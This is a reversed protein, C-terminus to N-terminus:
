VPSRHQTLREFAKAYGDNKKSWEVLMNCPFEDCENCHRLRKEDVCCKLILCDSSWHTQRSGHCGTCVMNKEVAENVGEDRTLWGMERYWKITVRAAEDDFPMRRIECTGCLLGCAAMLAGDNPMYDIELVRYNISLM